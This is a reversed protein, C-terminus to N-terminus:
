LEEPVNTSNINKKWNQLGRYDKITIPYIFHSLKLKLKLCCNLVQNPADWIFQENDGRAHRLNALENPLCETGHRQLVLGCISHVPPSQVATEMNSAHCPDAAHSGTQKQM